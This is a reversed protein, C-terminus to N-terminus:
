VVNVLEQFVQNITLMNKDSTYKQTFNDVLTVAM